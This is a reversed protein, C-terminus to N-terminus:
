LVYAPGVVCTNSFAEYVIYLISYQVIYQVTCTSGTYLIHVYSLYLKGVFEKDNFIKSVLALDLIM